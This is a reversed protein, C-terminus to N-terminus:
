LASGELKMGELKKVLPTLAKADLHRIALLLCALVVQADEVQCLETALEACRDLVAREDVVCLELLAERVEEGGCRARVARVLRARAAMAPESARTRQFEKEVRGMEAEM